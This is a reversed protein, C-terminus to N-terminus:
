FCAPDSGDVCLDEDCYDDMVWPCPDQLLESQVPAVRLRPGEVDSLAMALAPGDLPLNAAIILFSPVSHLSRLSVAQLSDNSRINITEAFELRDLGTVSALSPNDSIDLATTVTTLAPFAPTLSLVDNSRLVFSSIGTLGDFSPVRSLLRHNIIALAELSRLGGLGTIDVLQPNDSLEIAIAERLDSLADLDRVASGSLSFMGLSTIGRLAELQHLLPNNALSMYISGGGLSLGGLSQLEPNDYINVLEYGGVGELARLDTLTTQVIELDRVRRLSQLARVGAPTTGLLTLRSTEQLNELGALSRDTTLVLGGDGVRELAHLPRLDLPTYVFLGYVFTCGELADISSQEVAYTVGACDVRAPTDM